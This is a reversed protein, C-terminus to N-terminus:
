SLCPSCDYDVREITGGIKRRRDLAERMYAFTGDENGEGDRVLWVHSLTLTSTLTKM